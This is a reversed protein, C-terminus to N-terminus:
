ESAKKNDIISCLIIIYMMINIISTVVFALGVHLFESQKISNIIYQISITLGLLYGIGRVYNNFLSDKCFVILSIDLRTQKM